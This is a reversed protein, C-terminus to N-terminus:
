MGRYLERRFILPTPGKYIGFTASSRIEAPGADDLYSCVGGLPAEEMSRKQCLWTTPSSAQELFRRLWVSGEPKLPETVTVTVEKNAMWSGVSAATVGDSYLIPDENEAPVILETCEDEQPVWGNGYWHELVLPVKTQKEAPEIKNESRVRGLRIESNTITREFGQCGAGLDYCVDDKDDTLEAASFSQRISFPLDDVTPLSSREYSLQKATWTYTRKGDSNNQGSEIVADDDLFLRSIDLDRYEAMWIETPRNKFGWFDDHDYNKTPYEEGNPKRGYGTIGLTLRDDIEVLQDQYSFNGCGAILAGAGEVKLHTPYFRGIPKSEIAPVTFGLYSHEKIHLSFVGVESLAVNQTISGQWENPDGTALHDYNGGEPELLIGREGGEDESPAVVYPEIELGIRRYNKTVDSAACVDGSKFAVPTITIEFNEGVARFRQCNGDGMSCFKESSICIGAPSSVFEKFDLVEDHADLVALYLKGAEKYEIALEAEKEEWEVDKIEESKGEEIHKGNVVITVPNHYLGDREKYDFLINLSSPVKCSVPEDLAIVKAIHSKGAIMPGVELSIDCEVPDIPGPGGGAECLSIPDVMKYTCVGYIRSSEDGNITGWDDRVTVNGYVESNNLYVHHLGDHGVVTAIDGIVKSDSVSVEYRALVDGTVVANDNIFVRHANTVDATVTGGTITLSNNGPSITGSTMNVNVMVIPNNGAKLDGTVTSDRIDIGNNGAVIGNSITAGQSVTVKCCSVNVLGTVLGGFLTVAGNTSTLTSSFVTNTAILGNTMSVSNGITLNTFSGTGTGTVKGDVNTGNLTINTGTISGSVSGNKLSIVTSSVSSAFTTDSGTFGNGFSVAGSVSSGSIVGEGTGSVNGNIASQTITLKASTQINGTLSVGTLTLAGSGTSLNGYVVSSGVTANLTGYTTQLTIPSTVTGVKNGSLTIGADARLTIPSNAVYEDGAVFSVSASCTYTSGSISWSNNWNNCIPLQGQSINHVAANAVQCKLLAVLGIWVLSKAYYKM